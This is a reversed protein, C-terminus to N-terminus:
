YTITAPDFNDEWKCFEAIYLDQLKEGNPMQQIDYPSTQAFNTSVAVKGANYITTDETTATAVIEGDFFVRFLGNKRTFAYHNWQTTDTGSPGQINLQSSASLSQTHATFKIYRNNTAGYISLGAYTNKAADQSIVWGTKVSTLNSFYRTGPTSSNVYTTFTFPHFYFNAQTAAWFSITFDGNFNTLKLPNLNKLGLQTDSSATGPTPIMHYYAYDNGNHGAGYVGQGTLEFDESGSSLLSQNFHYLWGKVVFTASFTTTKGGYTVTITQTGEALTGSLTYDAAAIVATTSDTYTATVVLDDKLSDLDDNTYVTGSQTYVASISDLVPAATVTVDFTDEMTDYSVTVTSTGPELTGSLTYTAVVVSTNDDYHATVVLYQRLTELSVNDYIVASGQTFEAEISLLTAPPYFANYLDTYVAQGTPGSYAVEEALQLIAAKMTDNLGFIQDLNSKRVKKTEGGSVVPIFDDYGLVNTEVLESIKKGNSSM